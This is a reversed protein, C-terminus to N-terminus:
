INNANFFSEWNDVVQTAFDLIEIEKGSTLAMRVTHGNIPITADATITTMDCTLESNDISLVPDNKERPPRTLLKHKSGNCLDACLRLMPKSNIYPEVGSVGESKLWDKIHYGTVAFNFVADSIREPNQSIISDYLASQDRKVKKLLKKANGFGYNLDISMHREPCKVSAVGPLNSRLTFKIRTIASTIRKTQLQTSYASLM